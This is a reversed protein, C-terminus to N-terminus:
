DTDNHVAEELSKQFERRKKRIRQYLDERGAVSLALGQKVSHITKSLDNKKCREECILKQLIRAYQSKVDFDKAVLMARFAGELTNVRQVSIKKLHKLYRIFARQEAITLGVKESEMDTDMPHLKSRGVFKENKYKLVVESVGTSKDFSMEAIKLKSM